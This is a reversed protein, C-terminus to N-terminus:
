ATTTRKAPGTAAVFPLTDQDLLLGQRVHLAVQLHLSARSVLRQVSRSEPMMASLRCAMAQSRCAGIM